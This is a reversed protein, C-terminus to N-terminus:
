VNSIIHSGGATVNLKKGAKIKCNIASAAFLVTLLGSTAGVGIAINRFAKPDKCKDNSAYYLLGGTAAGGILGTAIANWQMRGSRILYDGSTRREKKSLTKDNLKRNLENVSTQLDQIQLSVNPDTVILQPQQQSQMPQVTTPQVQMPRQPASLRPFGASQRQRSVKQYRRYHQQYVPDDTYSSQALVSTAAFILMAAIAFIKQKM